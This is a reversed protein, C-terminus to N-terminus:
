KVIGKKLDRERERPFFSFSRDCSEEDLRYLIVVVLTPSEREFRIFVLNHSEGVKREAGREGRRSGERGGERM